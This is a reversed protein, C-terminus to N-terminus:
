EDAADSTYLLCSSVQQGNSGAKQAKEQEFVSSSSAAGASSQKQQVEQSVEKTVQEAKKQKAQEILRSANISTM